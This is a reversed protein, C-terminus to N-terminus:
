SQKRNRKFEYTTTFRIEDPLEEYKGNEHKEVFEILADIKEWYKEYLNDGIFTGDYESGTWTIHVLNSPDEPTSIKNIRNMDYMDIFLEQVIFDDHTMASADWAYLTIRNTPDM